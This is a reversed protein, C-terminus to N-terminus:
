EFLLNIANRDVNLTLSDPYEVDPNMRCCFIFRYEEEDSFDKSKQYLSLGHPEIMYQPMERTEGKSYEVKFVKFDSALSNNNWVKQLIIKFQEPNIIKVEHIGFYKRCNCRNSHPGSTSLIYVPNIYTLGGNITMHGTKYNYRAQNETTDRRQNEKEWKQHYEIKRILINGKKFNASDESSTFNKYVLVPLTDDKKIFNHM